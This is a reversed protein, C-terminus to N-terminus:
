IKDKPMKHAMLLADLATIQAMAQVVSVARPVVCSDHRGRPILTVSEGEDNIAPIERMLTAVPKFAVRFVVPSGNTIGGQVGGSHNTLTSIEGEPTLTFADNMESGLRCVGEFGMGYDFGKAANISMMASALMAHFKSYVPEGVGVPLGLIVGNVIGGITDGADRVREVLSIMREATPLHPCRTPHEFVAELDLTDAPVDIKVSGIQSAYAYVKVGYHELVEAAFAGAAVRLVTERASSRGGGRWDRIGYKAQYTFDAHSPRYIHRMHEYDESRADINAITFAIPTGTTVGDLLGSLVVINDPEGRTSNLTCEGGPRRRSLALNIRALDIKIGSPMGDIIGTMAPGHSEGATTLRFINGFTNM